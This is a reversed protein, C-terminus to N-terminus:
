YSVNQASKSPVPKTAVLARLPSIELLLPIVLGGSVIESHDYQSRLCLLRAHTERPTFNSVRAPIQRLRVAGYVRRSLRNTQRWTENSVLVLQHPKASPRPRLWARFEAQGAYLGDLLIVHQVQPDSLWPLITRYAGSHGVVVLPGHPLPFPSREALLGLLDELSTWYVEDRNSVPAEIAVFLANRGSDSCQEALHDDAWTQDVPTFYGHVYIVMGATRPDYNAPHWLHVPGHATEIRAHEGGAEAPSDDAEQGPLSSARLVRWTGATGLLLGAFILLTIRGSM